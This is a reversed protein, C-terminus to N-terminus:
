GLQLALGSLQAPPRKPLRLQAGSPPSRPSRSLPFLGSRARLHDHQAHWRRGGFQVLFLSAFPLFWHWVVDSLFRWSLHPSLDFSYAGAIPFLGLVIGLLWALLIGLWMYPTATLIYGLPLVTNDLWKTRAAFAGFRNGALWSLLIAPLLLAIDYPVGRLLVRVVPTPFLYTSIGLDGHFLANWFNLYQQWIPLDLRFAHTYYTYLVQAADANLAARSLMNAIPDGPMFRPILWDITVALLFTLGYILFKRGFYRRVDGGEQQRNLVFFQGGGLPLLLCRVPLVSGRHLPCRSWTSSPRCDAWNGTDPGHRLCLQLPQNKQRGTRGPRMASSPGCATIGSRIMPVETLMLEQIASCAAQMGAVDTSPVRALADVLDFIEPQRVASTAARMLEQIPHRFLLNYLTWPTNSMNAWNNLTMDFTGSQLATNWAGYDPTAAQINIGAEQASNAIVSIAEMWDTWGFPCTVELAIASGDPAEVFGDGDVDVYGAAALISRSEAPDYSFGLRDVVDQDVFNSLSPLLGTPNAARVLNAYAVNVIDGTNIAFALARRFAPDDMPSKATNLFLVATNASLM